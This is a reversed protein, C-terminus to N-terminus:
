RTQQRSPSGLREGPPESWPPTAAWEEPTGTIVPAQAKRGLILTLGLHRERALTRHSETERVLAGYVGRVGWRSWARRLVGFRDRVGFIRAFDPFAHARGRQRFPGDDSWSESHLREVGARRLLDKWETLLLPQVGLQRSVRERHEADVPAKWVPQVLAIRAGPRAVRVLEGVVASPDGGSTLGLEGLVVDFVQDRYPLDEPSAVEYQLREHLEENRARATAEGVLHPDPDAGSGQVGRERVLFEVSLGAGSPVVLVDEGEGMRTLGAIQRYLGPGGSPLLPRPSLRVLDLM